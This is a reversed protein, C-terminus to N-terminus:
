PLCTARPPKLLGFRLDGAASALCVAVRTGDPSFQTSFEGLTSRFVPRAAMKDTTLDVAYVHNSISGQTFALLRGDRSLSPFAVRSFPFPEIAGSRVDLRYLRSTNHYGFFASANFVLTSADPGWTPAHNRRLGTEIERVARLGWAKADLEAVNLSVYGVEGVRSFALMSGDHSVAPGTDGVSRPPPATLIRKKGSDFAVRVIHFPDDESDRDAVLISRGDPMWDLYPGTGLYPYRPPLTRAVMREKGGLPSVVMLEGLDNSHIRLFAIWRGDPSWRPSTDVVPHDTLRQPPQDDGVVKVYIDSNGRKPGNWEFAVQSSDPSFTAYQELGPYSTLPTTPSVAQAPILADPRRPSFASWLFGCLIAAGAVTWIWRRGSTGPADEEVSGAREVPAM